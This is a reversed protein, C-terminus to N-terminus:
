SSTIHYKEREPKRAPSEPLIALAWLIVAMAIAHRGRQCPDRGSLLVVAGYFAAVLALGVIRSRYSTFKPNFTM